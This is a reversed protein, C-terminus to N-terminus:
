SEISAIKKYCPLSVPEPEVINPHKSTQVKSDLGVVQKKNFGLPWVGHLLVIGIQVDKHPLWVWEQDGHILICAAIVVNDRTSPKHITWFPVSNDPNCDKVIWVGFSFCGTRKGIRGVVEIIFCIRHVLCSGNPKHQLNIYQKAHLTTKMTVNWWM